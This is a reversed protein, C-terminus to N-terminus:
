VSGFERGEWKGYKLVVFRIRFSSSVSMVYLNLWSIFTPCTYLACSYLNDEYDKCIMVFVHRNLHVSFIDKLFIFFKLYFIRVNKM